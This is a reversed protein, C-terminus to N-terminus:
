WPYSKDIVWGSKSILAGCAAGLGVGDDTSKSKKSCGDEFKNQYFDTLTYIDHPIGCKDYGGLHMGDAIYHENYVKEPCLKPRQRNNYFYFVFVDRGLRNVGVPGDIDVILSILGNKNKFFGLVTKDALIISYKSKDYMRTNKLDKYQPTKWCQEQSEKCYNNISLYPTFYTEAFKEVPLTTDYDNMNMSNVLSYMRNAQQLTSYLTRYTTVAKKQKYSNYMPVALIMFLVLFVIGVILMTQMLTVAVRKKRMYIGKYSVM